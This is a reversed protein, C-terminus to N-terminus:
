QSRPLLLLVAAAMVALGIIRQIDLPIPKVGGWGTTDVILSILMQGLIVAAIGATVGTRQLAFSIGTIILIGIFGAIVLMIVANKPIQMSEIGQNLYLILVILGAIIGGILNTLLGTRISGILSGIRSSLTSQIGITVGTGFAAIVGLVIFNKM